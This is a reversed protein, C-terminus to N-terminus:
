QGLGSRSENADGYYGNRTSVRLGRGQVTVKLSHFRDPSSPANKPYFGVLYQTRLERVIDDFAQDLQAGLSPTFVRGGTGAALTILANEGGINRGADNEIPIVVVPYLIADAFQMAELAQRYNKTSTTDGGDTVIVMVHRGPRFQLDRSALFIADYMSTGGESKLQKLLSDVRAFRRTYNSQLTVQWNFSYLAVTDNPNGEELLVKLFRSMSDLEYHLQIGTSASTDVMLAVSLPQETERDFLAIDQKAGNDYVAFDSKNLSGVLKGAADKVSVLMRVLRVNVKIVPEPQASAACAAVFFFVVARIM